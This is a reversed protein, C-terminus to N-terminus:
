PRDFSAPSYAAREFGLEITSRVEHTYLETPAFKTRVM